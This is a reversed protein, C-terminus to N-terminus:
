GLMEWPKIPAKKTLHPLNAPRKLDHRRTRILAKGGLGCDRAAEKEQESGRIQRLGFHFM